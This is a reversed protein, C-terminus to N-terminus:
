KKTFLSDIMMRGARNSFHHNEYNLTSDSTIRNVGSFDYVKNGFLSELQKVVNGNFKQQHFGPPIIIFYNTKENIFIEKIEKLYVLDIPNIENVILEDSLKRNYDPNYKKKYAAFDTELLTDKPIGHAGSASKEAPEAFCDKM